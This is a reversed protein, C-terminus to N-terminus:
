FNLKNMLYHHALALSAFSTFLSEGMNLFSVSTAKLCPLENKKGRAM